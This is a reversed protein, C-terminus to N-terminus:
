SGENAVQKIGTCREMRGSSGFIAEYLRPKYGVSTRVNQRGEGAVNEKFV